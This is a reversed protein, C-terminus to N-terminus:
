ESQMLGDVSVPRRAVVPLWARQGQPRVQMDVANGEFVMQRVSGSM